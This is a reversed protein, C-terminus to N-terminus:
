PISVVPAIAFLGTTATGLSPNADGSAYFIQNLYLDQGIIQPSIPVGSSILSAYSAGTTDWISIPYNVGATLPIPSAFTGTYLGPGSVPEDVSALAAGSYTWAKCRVPGSGANNWFFIIGHLTMNVFPLINNGMSFSGSGGATNMAAGVHAPNYVLPLIGGGGGGGTLDIDTGDPKTAYPKDGDASNFWFAGNPADRQPSLAQPVCQIGLGQHNAKQTM